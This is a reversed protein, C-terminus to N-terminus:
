DRPWWDSLTCGYRRAAARWGDDHEDHGLLAHAIEHLITDRQLWEPQTDLWASFSFLRHSLFVRGAYVPLDPGRWPEIRVTWDAFGHETTLQNALLATASM